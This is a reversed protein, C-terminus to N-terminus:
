NSYEKSCVEFLIQSKNDIYNSIYLWLHEIAAELKEKNSAILNLFLPNTFDVTQGEFDPFMTKGRWWGNHQLDSYKAYHEKNKQEFDLFGIFLRSGLAGSGSFTEIGLVTRAEPFEHLRLWINSNTEEINSKFEISFKNSYRSQLKQILTNRVLNSIEFRAKDYNNKILNAAQFNSKIVQLIDNEMKHNTLQGTLKKILIIYQRITERLIPQLHAEKICDELWDIITESYSICHYDIGSELNGKSEVSPEKGFLTLYYVNCNAGKYNKYREIQAYQDGANIKNEIVISFGNEAIIDIDLRGGTKNEYDNHGLDNEIIVSASHTPFVIKNCNIHKLFSKLFVDDMGHTGKPNLLAALFNSHTKNEKTEVGLITFVNFNEGNAKALEENHNAISQVRELLNQLTTTASNDM